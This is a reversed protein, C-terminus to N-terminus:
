LPVTQAVDLHLEVGRGIPVAVDLAHYQEACEAIQRPFCAIDEHLVFVAKLFKDRCGQLRKAVTLEVLHQWDLHVIERPLVRGDCPLMKERIAPVLGAYCIPCKPNM